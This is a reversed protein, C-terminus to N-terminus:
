AAVSSTNEQPGTDPPSNIVRQSSELVAKVTQKEREERLYDVAAQAKSAAQFIAKKDSGLIKLWEALYEPHETKGEIGAESTLFASGMEAVLEERVYDPSGYPTRSLRDLRSDHGSWHVLEHLATAYYSGSDPFSSRAPLQIIDPTPAFFARGGGHQVKALSLFQDALVDPEWVVAREKVPPLGDVQAVNFVTFARLLPFFRKKDDQIEEEKSEVPKWFLITTGKEGRKVNGGAEKAQKFTAWRDSQYGKEMAEAWLLPVNIGRYNRGSVANVPLSSESDWPKVWPVVGKELKAIIQDTVEQYLDRKTRAM